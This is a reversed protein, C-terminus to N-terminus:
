KPTESKANDNRILGYSRCDYTSIQVRLYINKILTTKGVCDPFMNSNVM